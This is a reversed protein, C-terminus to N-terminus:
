GTRESRGDDNGNTLRATILPVYAPNLEILAVHRGLEQAVMGTTGSGAFPDLVWDGVRSGAVLCPRVLAPPYTAFHAEKYPQPSIFWVDRLNRAGSYVAYDAERRNGERAGSGKAARTGAPYVAIQRSADYDYFYKASKSLLFLYEHASTPRDRQSGPMTSGVGGPCFEHAKAWIVDSRLYWGDARLAFAVMWPIGVLDKPKLGAFRGSISRQVNASASARNRRQATKGHPRALIDQRCPNTLSSTSYGGPKNGRPASVYNDGLNLWLVGDDKLVRRVEAFVAVLAAVYADPTTELGIQGDHGYDRLGWYPPSTVCCQFVRDPMKRLWTLADGTYIRHSM